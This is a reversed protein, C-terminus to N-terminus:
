NDLFIGSCHCVDNTTGENNVKFLHWVNSKTEKLQQSQNVLYCGPLIHYTAM